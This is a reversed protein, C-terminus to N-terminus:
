LVNNFLYKYQGKNHKNKTNNKNNNYKKKKFTFSNSEFFVTDFIHKHTYKVKKAKM